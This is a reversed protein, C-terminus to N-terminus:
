CVMKSLLKDRYPADPHLSRMFNTFNIFKIFKFYIM